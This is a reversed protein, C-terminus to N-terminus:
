YTAFFNLLSIIAALGLYLGYYLFPYTQFYKFIADVSNTTFQCPSLWPPLLFSSAETEWHVLQAILSTMYQSQSQLPAPKLSFM